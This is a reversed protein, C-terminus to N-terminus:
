KRPSVEYAAWIGLAAVGGYLSVVALIIIIEM